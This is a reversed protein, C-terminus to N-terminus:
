PVAAAAGPAAPATPASPIQVEPTATVPASAQATTGKLERYRALDDDFKKKLEVRETDKIKLYAANKDFQGQLNELKKVVNEPPEKGSKKMTDIKQKTDDIQTQLIANNSQTLSIISDMSGLHEDRALLLDRETTYTDLLTQDRARQKAEIEAQKRREAELAAQEAKEQIREQETKARDVEKTTIGQQNIEKHQKMADAPPLKDSYHVEGNEDVWKYLKGAAWAPAVMLVALSLLWVNRKNM